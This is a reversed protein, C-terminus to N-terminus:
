PQVSFAIEDTKQALSRTEYIPLSAIARHSMRMGM